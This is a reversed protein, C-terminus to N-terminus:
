PKCLLELTEHRHKWPILWLDLHCRFTQHLLGQPQLDCKSLDQIPDRKPCVTRSIQFDVIYRIGKVVQRQATSIASPKFLFADNSRKNFDAAATLVVQQLAADNRSINSPSGPMSVGHYSGAAAGALAAAALLLPLMKRVEM